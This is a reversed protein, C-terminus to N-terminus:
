RASPRIAFKKVRLCVGRWDTSPAACRSSGTTTLTLARDRLLWYAARRWPGLVDFLESLEGSSLMSWDPVPQAGLGIGLEGCQPGAEAGPRCKVDGLSDLANELPGLAVEFVLM